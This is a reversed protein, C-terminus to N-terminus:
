PPFKSLLSYVFIFLGCSFAHIVFFIFAALSHSSFSGQSECSWGDASPEPKQHHRRSSAVAPHVISVGARIAPMPEIFQKKCL